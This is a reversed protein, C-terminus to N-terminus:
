RGRLLDSVKDYALYGAGGGVAGRIAWKKTMDAFERLRAAQAFEKVASQYKQGEGVTDAARILSDHLALRLTIVERKMVKNLRQFEDASLKTINSYFDRAEGYALDGKKPDTSRKLFDRVVKPMSGGRESLQAIRLAADGVRSTDIPVDKAAKMVQQFKAGARAANPLVAKAVKHVAAGPIALQALEGVARGAMAHGSDAQEIGAFPISAGVGSAFDGSKRVDLQTGRGAAPRHERSFRQLPTEGVPSPVSPKLLGPQIAASPMPQSQAQPMGQANLYMKGPAAGATPPTPGIPNGNADLYVKGPM